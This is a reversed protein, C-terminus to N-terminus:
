DINLCKSESKDLIRNLYVYEDYVNKYEDKIELDKILKPLSKLFEWFCDIPSEGLSIFILGDKKDIHCVYDINEEFVWKKGKFELPFCELYRKLGEFNDEILKKDELDYM